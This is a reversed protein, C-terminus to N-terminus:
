HWSVRVNRSISGTIPDEDLIIQMFWSTWGRPWFRCAVVLLLWVRTDRYLKAVLMLVFWKMRSPLTGFRSSWTCPYNVMIISVLFCPFYVTSNEPIVGFLHCRM